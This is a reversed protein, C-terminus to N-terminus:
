ANIRDVMRTTSQGPTLDALYLTGGYSQVFDAGVVDSPAYDAGKILVDPRLKAILAAPTDEDFLVVADVGAIAALVLARSLESQIPREPGKLRRVSADSNLGVILRDCQAAAQSLLSIHGPHVLDFCGNTFGVRRGESKWRRALSVVDETEGLKDLLSGREERRTADLLERMEVAATGVKGVVIGAAVNALEAARAAEIGVGIAVALTAVVTDGAGSIDFVERATTPLHAVAGDRRLFSAGLESRTVLVAEVYEFLPKVAREVAEDTTAEIGTVEHLEKLNPTILSAGLYKAYDRGKPDVIVPVGAARAATVIASTVQATLVGKAYDSLVVVDVDPLLSIARDILEKGVDQSIQTDVENDVRLVQQNAAVFRTKTTTPRTRDTVTHCILGPLASMLATLEDGAEDAGTVSLLHCQAGLVTMNRAVNGAGGPMADSYAVRVVPVPAEPSIRQVAGYTFRDLMVDGVCLITAESFKDIETVYAM